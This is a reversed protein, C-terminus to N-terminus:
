AIKLIHFSKQLIATLASRLAADQTFARIGDVQHLEDHEGIFPDIGQREAALIHSTIWPMAATM